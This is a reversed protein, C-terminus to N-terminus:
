TYNCKTYISPSFAQLPYYSPLKIHYSISQTGSHFFGTGIPYLYNNSPHLDYVNLYVRYTTATSSDRVSNLKMQPIVYNSGTTIGLPTTETIYIEHHDLHDM